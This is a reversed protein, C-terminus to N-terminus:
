TVTDSAKDDNKHESLTKLCFYKTVYTSFLKNHSDCLIGANKM